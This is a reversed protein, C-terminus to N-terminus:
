RQNNIYNLLKRKSSEFGLAESVITYYDDKNKTFDYGHMAIELRSNEYSFLEIIGKLQIASLCKKTEIMYKAAQLKASNFSENNLSSIIQNYENDTIHCEAVAVQGSGTTQGSTTSQESALFDAFNSRSRPTSFIQKMEIYQDIDYVSKLGMKAFEYKNSESAFLSGIRMLYATPICNNQILKNAKSLKIQEDSTSHIQNAIYNFQNDSIYRDCNKQGRYNKFEPYNFNPFKIQIEENAISENNSEEPNGSIFDHLRFVASYYIFADYVEYFNEKDTTNNYASKAFQLRTNDNEFLLAIEKIQESSFCLSKVLQSALQLKSSETTRNKIQQYRQQFQQSSLPQNCDNQPFVLTAVATLLILAIIKKM